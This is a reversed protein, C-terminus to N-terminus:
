SIRTKATMRGFISFLGAIAAVLQLIADTLVESSGSPLPMGLMSSLTALVSVIAAWVTKSLYWPKTDTM